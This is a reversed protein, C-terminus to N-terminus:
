QGTAIPKASPLPASEVPFQVPQRLADELQAEARVLRNRSEILLLQVSIQQLDASLVETDDVAGAKLQAAAFAQQQRQADALTRTAALSARAQTLVALAADVEAFIQAQRARARAAAEERRAAAEAIPGQNQNLLPLDLGLRLFSWESEGQNWKYGSGLNLNPYQRVIELRLALETAEYAALLVRLDPRGQVARARAETLLEPEPGFRATPEDLVQSFGPEGMARAFEKATVGLAAALRPGTVAARERAQQLDLTTRQAALQFPVLESPAAGGAAVRRGILHLLREQVALQAALANTQQRLFRSELLADRVETRVRWATEHLELRAAETNQRAAALRLGRRGVTEVPVDLALGPAWPTLGGAKVFDFEGTVALMPNPRMGATVEAAQATRWRARPVELAPNFHLATLALAEPTWGALEGLPLAPRHHAIIFSHLAPSDLRRSGFATASAVSDLPRSQYTACGALVFVGLM